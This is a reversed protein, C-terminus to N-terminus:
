PLESSDKKETASSTTAESSATEVETAETATSLQENKKGCGVLIFCLVLAFLLVSCVKKM